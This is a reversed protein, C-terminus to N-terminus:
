KRSILPMLNRPVLKIKATLIDSEKNKKKRQMRSSLLECDVVWGAKQPVLM